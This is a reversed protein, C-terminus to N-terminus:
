SPLRSVILVRPYVCRDTIAAKQVPARPKGRLFLPLSAQTRERSHQGTRDNKEETGRADAAGERGKGGSWAAARCKHMCAHAPRRGSGGLDTALADPVANLFAQVLAELRAPFCFFFGSRHMCQRCSYTGLEQAPV